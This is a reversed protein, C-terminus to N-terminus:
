KPLISISVRGIGYGDVARQKMVMSIDEEVVRAVINEKRKAEAKRADKEKEKVASALLTAGAQEIGRSPTFTNNM